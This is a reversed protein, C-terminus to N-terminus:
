EGRLSKLPEIRTVRWAPIWSAVLAVGLLMSATVALTRGDLGPAGALQSAILRTVAASSVAGIAIGVAVILLSRRILM